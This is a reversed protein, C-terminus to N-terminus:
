RSWPKVQGLFQLEIDELSMPAGTPYWMVEVQRRPEEIMSVTAFIGRQHFGPEIPRFDQNDVHVLPQVSPGFNRVHRFGAARLEDPLTQDSRRADDPDNSQKEWVEGSETVLGVIPARHVKIVRDGQGIELLVFEGPYPPASIASWQTRVVRNVAM